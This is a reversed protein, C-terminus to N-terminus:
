SHLEADILLYAVIDFSCVHTKTQLGIGTAVPKIATFNIDGINKAGLIVAPRM